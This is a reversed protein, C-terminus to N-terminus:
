KPEKKKFVNQHQLWQQRAQPLFALYNAESGQEAALIRAAQEILGDRQRIMNDAQDFLSKAEPWAAKIPAIPQLNQYAQEFQRHFLKRKARFLMFQRAKKGKLANMQEQDFGAAEGIEIAKNQLQSIRHQDNDLVAQMMGQEFEPNTLIDEYTISTLPPLEAQKQYKFYGIGICALGILGICIWRLFM